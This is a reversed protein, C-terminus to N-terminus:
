SSGGNLFLRGVKKGVWFDLNPLDKRIIPTGGRSPVDGSDIAQLLQEITEWVISTDIRAYNIIFRSENWPLFVHKLVDTM